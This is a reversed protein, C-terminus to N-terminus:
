ISPLFGRDITLDVRTEPFRTELFASVHKRLEADPVSFGSPVKLDFFFSTENGTRVVRFDHASLEESLESLFGALANQAEIALPDDRRVPDIHITLTVGEDRLFEREIGDNLTQMGIKAGGGSASKSAAAGSGSGSSKAPSCGAVGLAAAGAAATAGLGLFARRSFDKSM